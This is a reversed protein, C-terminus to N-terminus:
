SKELRNVRLDDIDQKDLLALNLFRGKVMWAMGFAILAVAECWFTMRIGDWWAFKFFLNALMAAASAAILLGCTVYFRNRIKKNRELQNNDRLQYPKVQTFVFLAFIAMIAFVIGASLYHIKEVGEFLWFLSSPNSGDPAVYPGPGVYSAGEPRVLQLFGRGLYSDLACGNRITPFFAVGFAGWGAVTALRAQPRSEARYVILFAGIFCLCGVFFTGLYQSYYFHSISQYFCVKVTETDSTFYVFLLLIFPLGLAVCGVFFSLKRDDIRFQSGTGELYKADYQLLNKYKNM